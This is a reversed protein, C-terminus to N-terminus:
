RRESRFPCETQCNGAECEDLDYAIRDREASTVAGDLKILLDGARVRDGDQVRIERVIGAELPQLVKTKGSPALRGQATAIIDVYGFWSWALAVCFFAIIAFADAGLRRPRRKWSKLRRLFFRGSRRGRRSAKPWPVIRASTKEPSVM